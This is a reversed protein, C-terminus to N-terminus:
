AFTKYPKLLSLVAQAEEKSKFVVKEDGIAYSSYANNSGGTAYMQGVIMMEALKIDAPVTSFGATYVFVISDWWFGVLYQSINKFTVHRLNEIIHDTGEVGTYTIGNLSKIATVPRKRFFFEYGRQDSPSTANIKLRETYDSSLLTDVSFFGNIVREASDIYIGLLTDKSSDTIGLYDKVEALSAYTTM